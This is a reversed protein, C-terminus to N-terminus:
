EKSFREKDSIFYLGLPAAIFLLIQPENAAVWANFTLMNIKFINVTLFVGLLLALLIALVHAERRTLNHAM